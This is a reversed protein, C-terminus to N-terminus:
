PPMKSIHWFVVLTYSAHILLYQMFHEFVYLVEPLRNFIGAPKCCATLPGRIQSDRRYSPSSTGVGHSHSLEWRVNTTLVWLTIFKYIIICAMQPTIPILWKMSLWKTTTVISLKECCKVSTTNHGLCLSLGYHNITALLNFKHPGLIITM